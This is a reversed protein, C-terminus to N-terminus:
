ADEIVFQVDGQDMAPDYNLGESKVLTGRDENAQRSVSELSAEASTNSESKVSVSKDGANARRLSKVTFKVVGTTPNVYTDVVIMVPKKMKHDRTVKKTKPDYDVTLYETVFNQDLTFKELGTLACIQPKMFDVTKRQKETDANPGQALYITHWITAGKPVAETGDVVELSLNLLLAGKSKESESRSLNPIAKLGKEKMDMVFSRAQVLYQGCVNIEARNNGTSSAQDVLGAVEGAKNGLDNFFAGAVDNVM